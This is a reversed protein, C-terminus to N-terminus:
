EWHRVTRCGVGYRTVEDELLSTQGATVFGKVQEWHRVTRCGVGHGAGGGRCQPRPGIGHENGIAEEQLLSTRATAQNGKAWTREERFGIEHGMAWDRDLGLGLGSGQNAHQTPLLFPAREHRVAASTAERHM